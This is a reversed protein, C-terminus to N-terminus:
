YAKGIQKRGLFERIFEYFLPDESLTNHGADRIVESRIQGKPFANLLSESSWMPIVEDNEAIIILCRSKIDKVRDISQYNETLLLFMPYILIKSQALRQISDYPTILVLKEVDRKSAVYTAVGSGLSRGIVTINPHKEKVKDYVKLADSYIGDEDPYGTSKGYGRYNVLYSVHDQFQGRYSHANFAVAEGNGGFYLIAKDEIKESNVVIVNISCGDNNVDITEFGHPVPETPFYIFKKQSICLFLGVGLYLAIYFLIRKKNKKEM